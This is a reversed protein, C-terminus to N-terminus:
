IGSVASVVDVAEFLRNHNNLNINRVSPRGYIHRRSHVHSRRRRHAQLIPRAIMQTSNTDFEAGRLDLQGNILCSPTNMRYTVGQSSCCDTPSAIELKCRSRRDLRCFFLRKARHVDWVECMM